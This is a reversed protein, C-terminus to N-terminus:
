LGTTFVNRFLPRALSSLSSHISSTIRFVGRRCPRWSASAPLLSELVVVCLLCDPSSLRAIDCDVFNESGTPLRLVLPMTRNIAQHSFHQSFELHLRGVFDGVPQLLNLPSQQARAARFTKRKTKRMFSWALSPFHSENTESQQAPRQEELHHAATKISNNCSLRNLPVYKCAENQLPMPFPLLNTPVRPHWPNKM